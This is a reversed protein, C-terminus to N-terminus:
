PAIDSDYVPVMVIGEATHAYTRRALEAPDGALRPVARV